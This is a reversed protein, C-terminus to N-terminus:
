VVREGVDEVWRYLGKHRRAKGLGQQIPKAPSGVGRLDANGSVIHFEGVGDKALLDDGRQARDQIFIPVIEGELFIHAYLCLSQREGM